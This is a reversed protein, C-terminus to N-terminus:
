TRLRILIKMPAAAPMRPSVPILPNMSYTMRYCKNFDNRQPLSSKSHQGTIQISIQDGGKPQEHLLVHRWGVIEGLLGQVPEQEAAYTALYDREDHIPREEVRQNM